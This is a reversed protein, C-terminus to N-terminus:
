TFTLHHGKEEDDERGDLGNNNPGRRKKFFICTWISLVDMGNRRSQMHKEKGNRTKKRNFM